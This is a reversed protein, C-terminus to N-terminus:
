RPPRRGIRCVAKRKPLYRRLRAFIRYALRALPRVLPLDTLVALLRFWTEGPFAQWIAQFAAVGRFVTGCRDIAHLQFIFDALSIGFDAPNFAPDSIDVFELRGGHDKQMYIFMESSCVRCSGDYFVTLPFEPLTRM